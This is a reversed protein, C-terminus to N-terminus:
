HYTVGREGVAEAEGPDSRRNGQAKEKRRVGRLLGGIMKALDRLEGALRGQTGTEVLGMGAMIELLPLAELVSRKSAAFYEEKCEREWFGLGGALNTAMTVARQRLQGALEPSGKAATEAATRCLSAGTAVASRYVDLNEISYKM